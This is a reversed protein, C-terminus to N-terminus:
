KKVEQEHLKKLALRWVQSIDLNLRDALETLMQRDQESMRFSARKDKQTATM